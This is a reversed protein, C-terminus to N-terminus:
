YLYKEDNSAPFHTLVEMKSHIQFIVLDGNNSINIM